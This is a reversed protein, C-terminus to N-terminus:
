EKKKLLKVIINVDYQNKSERFAGYGSVKPGLIIVGSKDKTVKKWTWFNSLRGNVVYHGDLILVDSPYGPLLKPGPHWGDHEVISGIKPEHIVPNGELDKVVFPVPKKTRKM